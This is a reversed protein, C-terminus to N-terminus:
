YNLVIDFFPQINNSLKNIDTITDTFASQYNKEYVILVTYKDDYVEIELCAERKNGHYYQYEFQISNRGTPFIEPQYTLIEVLDKAKDIIYSNIPEAGYGNWDFELSNIDNLKKIVAEKNIPELHM